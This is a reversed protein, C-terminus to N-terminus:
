VDRQRPLVSQRRRNPGVLIKASQNCRWANRAALYELLGCLDCKDRYSASVAEGKGLLRDSYDCIESDRLILNESAHTEVAGHFHRSRIASKPSNYERRPRGFHSFPCAGLYFLGGSNFCLRSVVCRRSSVTARDTADGLYCLEARCDRETLVERLGKRNRWGAIAPLKAM